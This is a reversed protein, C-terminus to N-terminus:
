LFGFCVVFFGFVNLGWWMMLKGEVVFFFLDDFVVVEDVGERFVLWVM